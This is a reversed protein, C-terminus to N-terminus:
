INVRSRDDVNRYDQLNYQVKLSDYIPKFIEKARAYSLNSSIEVLGIPDVISIEKEKAKSVINPILNFAITELHISMDKAHIVIDLAFDPGHQYTSLIPLRVISFKIFEIKSYPIRIKSIEIEKFKFPSYIGVSIDEDNFVCDYSIGFRSKAKSVEGDISVYSVLIKTQATVGVSIVRNNFM